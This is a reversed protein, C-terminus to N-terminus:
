QLRGSAFRPGEQARPSCIVVQVGSVTAVWAIDPTSEIKCYVIPQELQHLSMKEVLRVDRQM